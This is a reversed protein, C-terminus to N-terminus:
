TWTASTTRQMRAALPVRPTKLTAVCISVSTRLTSACRCAAAPVDSSGIM